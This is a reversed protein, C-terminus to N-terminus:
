WFGWRGTYVVYLGLLLNTVVHAIIAAGLGRRIALLGYLAGAMVGAALRTHHELAFLGVTWLFASRDFKSPVVKTWDSNQLWRYLFSRFFMEEAPAIVFASGILKVGTLAWGCVAPAYPSPGTAAAGGGFGIAGLLSFDRYAPISEPVIWLICVLTGILLGCFLTGPAPSPTSRMLFRAGPVLCAACLVTRLAYAEATAPLVFLLAMWLAYPAVAAITERTPLTM